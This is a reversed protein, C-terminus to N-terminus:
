PLNVAQCASSARHAPLLYGKKFTLLSKDKVATEGMKGEVAFFGSSRGQFGATAKVNQLPLLVSLLALYFFYFFFFFFSSAFPKLIYILMKFALHLLGRCTCSICVSSSDGRNGTWAPYPDGVPIFLFIQIFDPPRARQAACVALALKAPLLFSLIQM